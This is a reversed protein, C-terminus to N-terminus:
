DLARITSIAAAKVTVAPSVKECYYRFTEGLMLGWEKPNVGSNAIRKLFKKDVLWFIKVIAMGAEDSTKALMHIEQFKGQCPENLDKYSISNAVGRVDAATANPISLLSFVIWRYVAIKYCSLAM